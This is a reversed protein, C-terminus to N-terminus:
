LILSWWIVRNFLCDWCVRLSQVGPQPAETSCLLTKNVFHTLSLLTYPLLVCGVRMEVEKWAAREYAYVMVCTCTSPCM